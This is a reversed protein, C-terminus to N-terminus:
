VHARGIKPMGVLTARGVEVPATPTTLDFVVLDMGQGIVGYTTSAPKWLAVANSAGHPLRKVDNLYLNQASASLVVGAILACVLKRTM